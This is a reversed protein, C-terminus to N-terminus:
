FKKFGFDRVFLRPKLLLVCTVRRFPRRARWLPRVAQPPGTDNGATGHSPRETGACMRHCQSSCRTGGCRRLQHQTGQAPLPTQAPSTESPTALSTDM